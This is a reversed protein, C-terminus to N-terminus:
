NLVEDRCHGTRDWLGPVLCLHGMQPLCDLTDHVLQHEGVEGPPVWVGWLSIKEAMLDPLLASFYPTHTNPGSVALSPHVVGHNGTLGLDVTRGLSDRLKRGVTEMVTTVKAQKFESCFTWPGTVPPRM